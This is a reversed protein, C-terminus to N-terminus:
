VLFFNKRLESCASSRWDFVSHFNRLVLLFKFCDFFTLHFSKLKGWRKETRKHSSFFIAYNFRIWGLRMKILSNVDNKMEKIKLFISDINVSKRERLFYWIQHHLAKQTEQYKRMRKEKSIFPNWKWKKKM